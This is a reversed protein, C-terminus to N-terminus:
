PRRQERRNRKKKKLCFVAYSIRMLSQLESTHEESRMRQPEIEAMRRVQEPVGAGVPGEGRAHLARIGAAQEPSMFGLAEVVSEGARPVIADIYVVHSIRDGAEALIGPAITGAYSHVVLVANEVDEFRTLNVVDAVHTATTIDRSILHHREGFGTLTPTHVIHGEARLPAAVYKWVWGGMGGGHVLVYTTM